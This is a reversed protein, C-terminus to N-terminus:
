QVFDFIFNEKVEKNMILQFKLFLVLYLKRVIDSTNGDGTLGNVNFLQFLPGLESNTSWLTIDLKYMNAALQLVACTFLGLLTNQHVHSLQFERVNLRGQYLIANLSQLVKSYLLTSCTFVLDFLNVDVTPTYLTYLPREARLHKVTVVNDQGLYINDPDSGVKSFVTNLVVEKGYDNGLLPEKKPVLLMHKLALMCMRFQPEFGTRPVEPEVNFDFGDSPLLTIRDVALASTTAM